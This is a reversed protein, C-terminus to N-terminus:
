KMLEEVIDQAYTGWLKTERTLYSEKPDKGLRRNRSGAKGLRHSAAEGLM